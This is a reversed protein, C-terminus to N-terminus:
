AFGLPMPHIRPLLMSSCPAEARVKQETQALKKALAEKEDSVDGLMRDYKESAQSLLRESRERWQAELDREM